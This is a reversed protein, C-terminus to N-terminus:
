KLSMNRPVDQQSGKQISSNEQLNASWVVFGIILLFAITLNRMYVTFPKLLICYDGLIIVSKETAWAIKWAYHSFGAFIVM